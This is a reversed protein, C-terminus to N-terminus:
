ANIVKVLYEVTDTHGALLAVELPTFAEINKAEIEWGSNVLLACGEIFGYKAALHLIGTENVKAGSNLALFMKVLDKEKVGAILAPSPNDVKKAWAKYQYKSRIYEEKEDTPSFRPPRFGEGWIVLHNDHLLYIAKRLVPDITDLLLSRVKSVHSGLSRHIGSCNTCILVALNISCWEPNASLCDACTYESESYGLLGQESCRKLAYVWEKVEADSEALLVVKTYPSVSVIEFAFLHDSGPLEKTQSMLLSTFVVEEFGRLYILQSNKICFYRRKWEKLIKGQKWLYGEKEDKFQPNKVFMNKKMEEVEREKKLSDQM